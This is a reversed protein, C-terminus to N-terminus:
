RSSTCSQSGPFGSYIETFCTEFAPFAVRDWWDEQALAGPLHLPIAQLLSSWGEMDENVEVTEIGNLEFIMCICDVTFQDRKFVAARTVENWTFTVTTAPLNKRFLRKTEPVSIDVRDDL